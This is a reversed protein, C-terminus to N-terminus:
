SRLSVVNRMWQRIEREVDTIVIRDGPCEALRDKSFKFLRVEDGLQARVSVEEPWRGELANERNWVTRLEIEGGCGAFCQAVRHFAQYVLAVGDSVRREYVDM